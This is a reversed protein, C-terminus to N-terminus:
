LKQINFAVKVIGGGRNRGFIEPHEGYFLDMIDPDAFLSCGLSVLRSIIKSSKWGIHDRYSLTVSPCLHIVKGYCYRVRGLMM